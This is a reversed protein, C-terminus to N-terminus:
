SHIVSVIERYFAQINFRAAYQYAHRRMRMHRDYNGALTSIALCIEDTKDHNLKYGNEDQNVL